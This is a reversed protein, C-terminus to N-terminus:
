RSAPTNARALGTTGMGLVAGVLELVLGTTGDQMIGAVVLLPMAAFAIGYIYRRTAPSTIVRAVEDGTDSRHTPM